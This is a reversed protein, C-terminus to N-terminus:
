SLARQAGRRRSAGLLGRVGPIRSVMLMAILMPMILATSPEPVFFTLQGPTAGGSGDTVSLDVSSSALIFYQGDPNIIAHPGPVYGNLQELLFGTANTAVIEAGIGGAAPSVSGDASTTTYTIVGLGANSVSTNFSVTDSPDPSGLVGIWNDYTALGIGNASAVYVDGSHNLGNGLTLLLSSDLENFSAGNLYAIDTSFPM